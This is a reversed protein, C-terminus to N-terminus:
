NEKLKVVWSNFGSAIYTGNILSIINLEFISDDLYSMDDTKPHESKADWKTGCMVVGAGDRKIWSIFELEIGKAKM